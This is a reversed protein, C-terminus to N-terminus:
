AKVWQHRVAYMALGVRSKVKLKEFLAGRYGDITKPSLSMKDAIEHYTLETCALQIFERERDNMKNFAAEGVSNPHDDRLAHVLKGTLFDTYYFDKNMVTLLASNLEEPEVDKCLYSKVGLRLMKVIVEEKEIMSVVIVKVTQFHQGLWTVSQFGDMDPMNVDMLIIDPPNKPDIKEQLDIGNSAEFLINYRESLEEILGRLGRRFLVHDDVLGLKIATM